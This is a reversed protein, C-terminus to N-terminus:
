SNQGYITVDLNHTTIVIFLHLGWQLNLVSNSMSITQVGITQLSLITSCSFSEKVILGPQIYITLINFITQIINLYRWPKKYLTLVKFSQAFFMNYLQYYNPTMCHSRVGTPQPRTVEIAFVNNRSEYDTTQLRNFLHRHYCVHSVCYLLDCKPSHTQLFAYVCHSVFYM